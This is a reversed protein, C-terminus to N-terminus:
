RAGDQFWRAYSRVGERWGFRPQWGWGHAKVVDAQYHQPDGSRAAGSFQARASGRLEDVITDVIDRITAAEGTGGNVTPCDHASQEAAMVLLAAADDVHLLDRTEAGTGGFTANGQTVSVCADWLLQKRLGAGYLSFLRVIACRTGFHRGYSRCLDEAIKKHLGYPSLPLLQCDTSIPQKSAIGYVAASSPLVLSPQHGVTRMYELVALTTEVTRQYDQYPNTLSYGVSGSGACHFITDPTGAHRFMTGITVDATHWRSIGWDRWEGESWSGHGIAIVEIGQSAIARAVHRGMFGHGGTVLATKAM